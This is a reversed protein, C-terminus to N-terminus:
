LGQNLDEINTLATIVDEAYILHQAQTEGVFKFNLLISFMRKRNSHGGYVLMESNTTKYKRYSSNRLILKVMGIISLKEYDLNSVSKYTLTFQEKFATASPNTLNDQIANKLQLKYDQLDFEETHPWTMFFSFSKKHRSQYQFIREITESIPVKITSICIDFDLNIMDVPFLKTDGNMISQCKQRLVSGLEGYESSANILKKTIISFKLSEKEFWVVKGRTIELGGTEREIWNILGSEAYLQLEQLEDSPFTLLSLGKEKNYFESVFKLWKQRVIEKQSSNNIYVEKTM